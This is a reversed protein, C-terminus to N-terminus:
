SSSDLRNVQRANTFSRLAWKLSDFDPLYVIEIESSTGTYFESYNAITATLLDELGAAPLPVWLQNAAKEPRQAVQWAASVGYILLSFSLGWVLGRQAATNSWGMSVLFTTVAGLVLVLLLRALRQYQVLMEFFQNDTVEFRPLLDDPRALDLYIFVMLASILMAHVVAAMRNEGQWVLCRSIEVAALASLPLLAWALDWTQRGPYALVWLFALLLWLSLLRGTKERNSWARVAGVIAFLLVFPQYVPLLLLIKSPHEGSSSLWGSIYQPFASGWGSLGQPFRLFLTGAALFTILGAFLASRLPDELLLLLKNSRNGSAGRQGGIIGFLQGFVWVSIIGVLGTFFAPGSLSALAVLIGALIHERSYWAAAALLTFSLALIPGGALRSLSVLGPDLAVFFATLLAAKAGLKDRFVFPVWVLMSGVLAPLLRALADSSGFIDFLFSTFVVYLPQGTVATSFGQSLDFAQIAFGAEYESLPLSGLNLLRIGLAIAFTFIYLFQDTRIPRKLM